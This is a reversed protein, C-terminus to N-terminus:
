LNPEDYYIKKVFLGRKALWLRVNWWMLWITATFITWPTRKPLKGYPTSGYIMSKSNVKFTVDESEKMRRKRPLLKTKRMNEM